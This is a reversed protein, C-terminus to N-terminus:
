FARHSRNVASHCSDPRLRVRCRLPPSVTNPTGTAAPNSAVAPRLRGRSLSLRQEVIRVAYRQDAVDLPANTFSRLKVVDVIDLSMSSFKRIKEIRVFQKVLLYADALLGLTVGDCTDEVLM